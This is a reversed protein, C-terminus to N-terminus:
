WDWQCTLSYLEVHLTSITANDNFKLLCKSMEQLASNPLGNASTEAFNPPDLCAFDSALKANASFRRDFLLM